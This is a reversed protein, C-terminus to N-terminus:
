EKFIWTVKGSLSKKIELRGKALPKYYVLGLNSQSVTLDM